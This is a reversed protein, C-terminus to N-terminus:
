DYSPTGKFHNSLLLTFLTQYKDIEVPLIEEYQGTTKNAIFLTANIGKFRYASPNRLLDALGQYDKELELHFYKKVCVIKNANEAFYTNVQQGISQIKQNM